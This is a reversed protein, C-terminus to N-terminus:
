LGRAKGAPVCPGATSVADGGPPDHGGRPPQPGTRGGHRQYRDPGRRGQGGGRRARSRCAEAPDAEGRSGRPGGLSRLEVQLRELSRAESKPTASSASRARSAISPLDSGARRRRSAPSPKRRARNSCHSTTSRSSSSTARRPCKSSAQRSTTPLGGASVTSRGAGRVPPSPPPPQPAAAKVTKAAQPALAAHRITVSGAPNLSLLASELRDGDATVSIRALFFIGALLGTALGAFAWLPVKRGKPLMTESLGRWQPSIGADPRPRFYRLAEYVDRRVQGLMAGGERRVRYQGAYGLALCLHALELLDGRSGPDALVANLAQFFGRGAEDARFFRALMGDRLWVEREIGPLGGVIDDITECLLYRGVRADNEAVGAEAAAREFGRVTEALHRALAAMDREAAVLQLEGLLMLAPAAAAVLPNSTGYGVHSLAGLLEAQPMGPREPQPPPQSVGAAPEFVTGTPAWGRPAHEAPSPDFTTPEAPAPAGAEAGHREHREGDVGSAEHFVTKEDAQTPGRGSTM